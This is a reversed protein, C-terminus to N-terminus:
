RSHQHLQRWAYTWELWFTYLNECTKQDNLDPARSALADIMADASLYGSHSPSDMLGGNYAAAFLRFFDGKYPEQHISGRLGEKHQRLLEEIKVLIEERNM